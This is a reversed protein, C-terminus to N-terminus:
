RKVNNIISLMNDATQISKSNIEYARQGAIMKVMEDIVSVNSMELFRQSITGFGEEGPNGTIAEGSSDSKDFLNRGLSSLGAPNIFRVINIRGGTTSKGTSDSYSWTGGSDITFNVATQPVQVNPSLRLGESNCLFGDKDIKFSGARTYLTRGNEEIQFFGDGEIAWDFSNGTQQYDGQTFIKSVAVVKVGMGVEVGAPLQVGASTESGSKSAVQYMLDQFDVRARKFGVTNVNALNNAIIDQELQQANMGTAAIWLSRIM